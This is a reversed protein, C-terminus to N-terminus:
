IIRPDTIRGTLASAAVTAPSALYIFADPNGLRGKFNRNQTSLCVEADGLIGEHVGVCAGCGPNMILAGAEALTALYGSKSAEIYTERSAPAVLFRVGDAVNKGAVTEAAIKIDELRGNTCTGLFAQNIVIDGMEAAPKVNDVTHPASVVPVLSAADIDVVRAYAAGDDATLPKFGDGRGRSTLFRETEADAPFLGAKAGAEVALSALTLRDNMPMADITAGGFELAMYTAGDAGIMGILTLMLDKAYVGQPMKGSVNVRITEPVRLWIKGATMAVAIDTSGMGTSFAGLAGSTCTHSDAGVVVFGPMTYDEAVRQHSIGQNVDSIKVGTQAAFRRIIMHANSLEQRPSPAAHDLFFITSGPKAVTGVGLKEWQSVVL